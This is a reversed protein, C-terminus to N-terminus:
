ALAAEIRGNAVAEDGEIAGVYTSVLTEVSHGLRRAVEGLPVGARLWTTAAAHRCDYIRLPAHGVDALARHWTRLWNSNTPRTGKRTRFILEGASVPRSVLWERLMGVLVPPIPVSRPGMKPEGSEDFSIDAERVEIRGWGREPLALASPRLMIVESPRLGGYYAVATMVRYMRSSPQHNVMADLARAMTKPDPLDRVDVSRRVRVARRQARGRVAPPWPDVDLVQLAVARRICAKSVKRFRGATSPALPQGWDGLGLRRDVEALIERTLESLRLQSTELWAEIEPDVPVGSPPLTVALYSRLGSPPPPSGVTVLLPVFRTLADLASRRTRPQWEDWQEALWRRVWQHCHLDAPDPQWSEPEGTRVDFREGRLSTQVLYSRYRDAEVRTGFARSHQRGEVAWRVIWPRKTRESRARRQIGFISHDQLPKRGRARIEPLSM